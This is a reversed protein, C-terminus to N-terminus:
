LHPNKKQLSWNHSMLHKQVMHFRRASMDNKRAEIRELLLIRSGCHEKTKTEFLQLM